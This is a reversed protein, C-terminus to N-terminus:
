KFHFPCKKKENGREESKKKAFNYGGSVTPFFTSTKLVNYENDTVTHSKFEVDNETMPILHIVPTGLKISYMKKEDSIFANIHLAHQHKFNIVAPLVTLRHYDDNDLSGWTEKIYAFNCGTKEKLIWPCMIKLHRMNEFNYGWQFSNHSDVRSNPNSDSFEWVMGGENNKIYLDSWMSLTFSNKYLDLFGICRKITGLEKEIGSNETINVKSPIPKWWNPTSKISQVIPVNNVVFESNIFCDVVIKKRKFFFM